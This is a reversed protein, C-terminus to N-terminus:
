GAARSGPSPGAGAILQRVRARYVTAGGPSPRSGSRRPTCRSARPICSTSTTRPPRRVSWDPVVLPRLRARPVMMAAYPMGWANAHFMPVVALLRDGQKFDMGIVVQMSHLYNSRHSYVVGKPNGTTGSTYCMSSADGSTWSPGTSPRRSPRSCRTGTTCAGRDAAGGGPRGPDRGPDPRQRHRPAAHDPAAAAPQVPRGPQQGPHGGPERRPQDRLHDARPLAPHEARAPGRGHVAGRPLQGPARRQEVHVDGRAPRRRHRAGAARARAARGPHRRGPVVHAARRRGDM